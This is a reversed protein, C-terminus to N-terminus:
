GPAPMEGTRLRMTRSNHNEPTRGPWPWFGAALALPLFPLATLIQNRITSLPCIHLPPDSYPATAALLLHGQSLIRWLIRGFNTAPYTDVSFRIAGVTEGAHRFLVDVFPSGWRHREAQSLDRSQFRPVHFRELGIQWDGLSFALCDLSSKPSHLQATEPM